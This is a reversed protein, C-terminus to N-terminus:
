PLPPLPANPVTRGNVFSLTIPDSSSRCSSYLITSSSQSRLRMPNPIQTCPAFRRCLFIRSPFDLPLCLSTVFLPQILLYELYIHVIVSDPYASEHVEDDWAFSEWPSRSRPWIRRLLDTLRSGWPLGRCINRSSRGTALHCCSTAVPHMTSWM